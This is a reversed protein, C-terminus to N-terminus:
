DTPQFTLSVEALDLAQLGNILWRLARPPLDDPELDEPLHVVRVPVLETLLERAKDAGDRGAQNGDFIIVVEKAQSLLEAQKHSLECGMCAVTNAFGAQHLKFVSFFGEVLVLGKDEMFEQARHYNFVALEKKFGKPLKYKGHKRIQQPKLRRGAYAVLQGHHDHIPIAICGRMIGRSCYGLGFLEITQPQLKRVDM